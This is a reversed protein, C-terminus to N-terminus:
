PIYFLGSVLPSSLSKFSTMNELNKNQKTEQQPITPVQIDFSSLTMAM